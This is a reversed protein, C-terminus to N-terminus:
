RITRAGSCSWVDMRAGTRYMRTGAAGHPDAVFRAATLAPQRLYGRALGSGAIYLEGAVGTPALHLRDDVVYLRYNPLPGGIPVAEVLSVEALDCAAADICAETPGYVNWVRRAVGRAVLTQALAPPLVDGGITLTDLRPLSATDELLQAALAPTGDLHTVRDRTLCSALGRDNLERDPLLIATGGAILPCCLQEFLPDFGVPSTVALRTASTIRWTANLTAIKNVLAAHSVIVGKPTGTSGSTYLIYAAHALGVRAPMEDDAPAVAAGAAAPAPAILDSTTLVCAVHADQRMFAARAAPLAPDLLLCVGGAKWVGLLAIALDPSSRDLAVGVCVEPGVGRAILHRALQSSRAHLEGHSIARDGCVVATADPTRRAQADLMAPLTVTPVPETADRGRALLQRTDDADLLPIDRVVRTPDATVVGVLQLFHRAMQEIRWRDFLDANYLWTCRIEGDQEFAYVDLDVSIRHEEAVLPEVQLDALRAPTWATNQLAFSVQFLPSINLRRPPALAEVLREFPVDQSAYADLATQRVDRLLTAFPMEPAVRMRLVLSNVFYGILQDLAVDQRNAIPSGIVIDDQGTYRALLAAFATLLSMYTTAQQQQGLQKLATTEARPLRMQVRQAVFTQRSPRPHDAPLLLDPLNALQRTWYALGADLVGSELWRRQWLAFDAYQVTLPPLPNPRDDRFAAYLATLERTFVGESWADSVIHHMTRVLVHDDTAFQLLRIRILPGRALDFPRQREEHWVERLTADTAQEPTMMVPRAPDVIQVPLGDVDDFRTRLSEHRSVITDMARALAQRDLSGRLRLADVLNYETSGGQLRDIFWLRQQAFSAPMPVPRARAVLPPRAVTAVPGAIATREAARARLWGALAGATAHTFVVDLAVEDRTRTRLESLVKIAALSNGGIEFFDDSARAPRRGLVQEWIDSVLTDFPDGPTDAAFPAPTSDPKSSAAESPASESPAAESSAATIAPRTLRTQLDTTSVIVQPVPPDIRLLRDLAEIGEAPTMALAYAEDHRAPAQNFTWGDWNISTWIPRGAQERQWAFADMYANAAAYAGYGAGGVMVALSSCLLCFDLPEERLLEDLVRLGERKAQFQAAWIGADSAELPAFASRRAEAAAHVVGHIAGFHHHTEAVVTRMADRDAVDASMVLIEAGQERLAQARAIEAAAPSRGVLVLRAGTTRALYSAIELGIRGLGGTILYVGHRRLRSPTSAGQALRVPTLERTWCRRGRIAIAQEAAHSRLAAVLADLGQLGDLDITRCRIDPYERPVVACLGLLPALDPDLPDTDAIAHLGRAILDIERCGATARAATRLTFLVSRSLADGRERTGWAHVVRDPTWDRARLAAFLAGYDDERDLRLRYAEDGVVGFAEGPRVVIVAAPEPALARLRRALQEGVDDESAFVLWRQRALAHAPRQDIGAAQKWTPVYFWDAIDAKDTKAPSGGSTRTRERTAPVDLRYLQREFPYTPLTVRRPTTHQHHRTWDIAAGALWLQGLTDLYPSLGAGSTQDMPALTIAEPIRQRTLRSLVHGPGTEVWRCGPLRQAITDIGDALRVCWRAHRVWYEPDVAEADAWRGTVNSVFPLRPRQWSVRHLVERFAPLIPDMLASHFARNGTLRHHAVGRASLETAFRVVDAERGAVVCQRAGNVAAVSLEPSLSAAITEEDTEIALMAGAAAQRMLAGRAAVVTLAETESMVGAVCAAVYEGLSHGIMAAPTLGWERWLMALAYETVFLAPQAIATDALRARAAAADQPDAYLLTRLDLGVLPQLRDCCRDIVRRVRPEAEYLSRGMGVVQTGQGPFLWVVPTPEDPARGIRIAEERIGTADDCVVMGRHAFPRRGVQLTYAADARDLAPHARLHDALHQTAATLAAPTRASWVLLHPGPAQEPRAAHPPPEEVIVHANTGGIGFASVGARLPRPGTWDRLAGNVFFPSHAFDISPNPSRYHLSAPLQRHTLALVVKILSTVGAAADLHGVSSKVSGIACSQPAMPTAPSAQFAETLAAVEVPDGLPTGTGHAEVYSISSAEVDAAELAARIVAAQGSVSPATYGVKSSGDNNLATGKIVAHIRDRDAVADALRKLLVLAIGSGGATGRAEADFARCRGDPSLIGGEEYRYGASGSADICVGGALAMDCDGELLAQCALHVAVLSTSCATQVTLSPGTLNLKYSTTTALAGRDNAIRIAASGAWAALEPHALLRAEHGSHTMGAYVGILGPYAQPDYGARELLEWASELFVRVQPDTIQAERPTLGFFAADFWDARECRREVKVFQPDRLREEPVGAARLAEDSLPTMADVGDRLNRWFQDVDNAGPLRCHLGVIAIDSAPHEPRASTATRIDM